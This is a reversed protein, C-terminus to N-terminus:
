LTLCCCDVKKAINELSVKKASANLCAIKTMKTSRWVPVETKVHRPLVLRSFDSSIIYENFCHKMYNHFIPLLCRLM